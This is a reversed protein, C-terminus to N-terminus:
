SWTFSEESFEVRQESIRDRCAARLGDALAGPGCVNVSVAGGADSCIGGVLLDASPRGFLWRVRSSGGEAGAPAHDPNPRTVYIEIELMGRGADLHWLEELWDSVWTVNRMDRVIWALKLRRAAVLGQASDVLLRRLHGLPHTIGSGGAVFLLATFSDFAYGENTYPGEVFAYFTKPASYPKEPDPFRSARSAADFLRNTFGSRRSIIFHINTVSKSTRLDRHASPLVSTHKGDPSQQPPLPLSIHELPSAPHSTSSWAISFPHSQTWSLRPIYLYAHTGPKYEWGNRMAVTVRVADEGGPVVEVVAINCSLKKRSFSFNKSWITILRHAREFAWMCIVLNVYVIHPLEDIHCHLWIGVLFLFVLVQHCFLFVQYHSHRLPALSTIVIMLLAIEALLGMQLFRNEAIVQAVGAWGAQEVKNTTWAGFHAWSELFVIRGIWRHYLNWTNFGVGVARGLYNNRMLCVFLPVTNAVAM